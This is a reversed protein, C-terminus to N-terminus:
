ALSIQAVKDLSCVISYLKSNDIDIYIHTCGGTSDILNDSTM